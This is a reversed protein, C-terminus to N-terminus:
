KLIHNIRTTSCKSIDRYITLIVSSSSIIILVVIISIIHFNFHFLNNLVLSVYKYIMVSNTASVKFQKLYYFVNM